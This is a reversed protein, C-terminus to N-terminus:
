SICRRLVEKLVEYTTNVSAISVKEHVSHVGEMEPGLSVIEIGKMGSAFIGCELGGHTIDVRGDKGTIEKYVEKVIKLLEADEKREWAPYDGKRESSGGTTRFNKEIDEIIQEKRRRKSSRILYFLRLGEPGLAAIGLNLSTMPVNSPDKLMEQVGTKNVSILSLVIQTNRESLASSPLKIREIDLRLTDKNEDSEALSNKIFKAAFVKMLLTALGRKFLIVYEASSPIVNDAAGGEISVLRAGSAAQMSLCFNNLMYIANLRGKAIDNGSHGGKLGSVRIRYANYKRLDKENLPFPKVPLTGWLQVAGACGVTFVGEEESDLNIMRTGKLKGLDLKGAGILGIEEDNTFVAEIPPYNNETDELVSLIMAAGMADDAGLTTGDACLFGDKELICVPETRMFDPNRGEAACVMDLHAQLIVPSENEKGTGGPRYVIVNGAEDAYYDLGRDEAFRIVLKKIKETNGSGHPVSSLLRFNDLVAMNEEKM